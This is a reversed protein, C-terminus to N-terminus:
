YTWPELGHPSVVRSKSTYNESLRTEKLRWDTDDKINPVLRFINYLKQYFNIILSYDPFFLAKTLAFWM